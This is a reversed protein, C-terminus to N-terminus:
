LSGTTNIQSLISDFEHAVMARNRNMRRRKRRDFPPTSISTTSTASSTTIDDGSAITMAFDSGGRQRKPRLAKPAENPTATTTINNSLITPKNKITYKKCINRRPQEAEEAMSAAKSVPRFSANSLVPVVNRVENRNWTHEGKKPGLLSMMPRRRSLTAFGHKEFSSALNLCDPPQSQQQLSSPSNINYQSQSEQPPAKMGGSSSSSTWTTPSTMIAKSCCNSAKRPIEEEQEEEIVATATATLAGTPTTVGLTIHQAELSLAEFSIIPEDDISATETTNDYTDDYAGFGYSSESSITSFSSSSSNTTISTTSVRRTEPSLSVDVKSSQQQTFVHPSWEVPNQSEGVRLSLLPNTTHKM